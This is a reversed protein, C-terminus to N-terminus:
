PCFIIGTVCNLKCTLNKESLQYNVSMNNKCIDVNWIFTYLPQQPRENFIGTLLACVKAHKGITEGIIFNHNASIPLQHANVARYQLGEEFLTSLCSVIKSLPACFPDIKERVCWSTWKNWALKHSGISGPRRSQSMLKAANSLIGEM